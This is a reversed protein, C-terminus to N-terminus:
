ATVEAGLSRKGAGHAPFVVVAGSRDRSCLPGAPGGCGICGKVDPRRDDVAPCVVGGVERALRRSADADAPGVITPQWGLARADEIDDVTDCSANFSPDPAEGISRWAHTYTITPVGSEKIEILAGVTSARDDATRGYDGVVGYRFLAPQEEIVTAVLDGIVTQEGNTTAAWAVRGTTYCGGTWDESVPLGDIVAADRASRPLMPCDTPCDGYADGDRHPSATWVDDRRRGGTLKANGSGKQLAITATTM